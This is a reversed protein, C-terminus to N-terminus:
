PQPAESLHTIKHLVTSEEPVKGGYFWSFPLVKIRNGGTNQQEGTEDHWTYTYSVLVRDELMLVSPYSWRGYGVPLLVTFRHDNQQAGKEAIAYAGEPRVIRIPGPEVFSEPHISEINQFHEWLKGGTRSICSSLRTRIFGQKIEEESAQTFVCLLHGTKQFRRVQAPAQTGSLQTPQPRTWSTGDDYSWAQYYRGLRTRMIMLLKGPLVETVSPEYTPEMHGGPEFIVFMDGDKNKKWTLGEDDSYFIFSYGFHPDWFHADTSVFNDNVYGGVFPAGEHHWAGQEQAQGVEWYVPLILRGSSTRLLVDQLMVAGPGEPNIIVPNSWEKGENESRSFLIRGNLRAGDENKSRMPCVMGVSHNSLRVMSAPRVVEGETSQGQFPQSWSIGGDESVRFEGAGSMLVRNNGLAAWAVSHSYKMEHVTLMGEQDTMPM